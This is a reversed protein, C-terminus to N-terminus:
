VHVVEINCCKWQPKMDWMAAHNCFPKASQLIYTPKKGGMALWMGATNGFFAVAAGDILTKWTPLSETVIRVTHPLHMDDLMSQLQEREHKACGFLITIAQDCRELLVNRLTQSNCNRNGRSVELPACVAYGGVIGATIAIARAIAAPPPTLHLRIPYGAFLGHWGFNFMIQSVPSGQAEGYLSPRGTGVPCEMIHGRCPIVMYDPPAEAPDTFPPRFDYIM